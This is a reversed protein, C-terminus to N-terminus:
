QKKTLIKVWGYAVLGLGAVVATDIMGEAFGIAFAKVYSMKNTGLNDYSEELKNCVERTLMFM